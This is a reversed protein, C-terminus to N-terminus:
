VARIPEHLHSLTLAAQAAAHGGSTPLQRSSCPALFSGLLPWGGPTVATLKVKTSEGQKYPVMRRQQTPIQAYLRAGWQQAAILQKSDLVAPAKDATDRSDASDTAGGATERDCDAPANPSGATSADARSSGGKGAQLVLEEM